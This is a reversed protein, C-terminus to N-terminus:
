RKSKGGLRRIEEDSLGGTRKLRSELSERKVGRFYVSETEKKPKSKLKSKLKPQPKLDVRWYKFAVPKNGKKIEAKAYKQWSKHRKKHTKLEARKLKAM